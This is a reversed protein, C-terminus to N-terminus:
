KKTKDWAGALKAKLQRALANGAYRQVAVLRREVENAEQQATEPFHGVVKLGYSNETEIVQLETGRGSGAWRKIFSPVPVGLTNAAPVLWSALKGVEGMWRTKLPAFKSRDAFFPQSGGRSVKSGHKSRLRQRHFAEPDAFKPNLKTPVRVPNIPHGFAQTIVRFGKIQVPNFGMLNLDRGIAAEGARKASVGTVGGSSPPVINMGERVMGKFFQRHVDKTERGTAAVFDQIHREGESFDITLSGSPALAM